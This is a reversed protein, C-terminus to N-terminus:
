ISFTYVSHGVQAQTRITSGAELITCSEEGMEIKENPTQNYSWNEAKRLLVVAACSEALVAALQYEEAEQVGLRAYWSVVGVTSSLGLLVTSILVSAILAIFGRNTSM